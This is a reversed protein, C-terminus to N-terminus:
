PLKKTYYAIGHSKLLAEMSKADEASGYDEGVWVRFLGDSGAESPEVLRAPLHRASLLLLLQGAEERKSFAGAQVVWRPGTKPPVPEPTVAQRPSATPTPQPDVRGPASRPGAEDLARYFEAMPEDPDPSEGAPVREVPDLGAVWGQEGASLVSLYGVFLITIVAGYLTFTQRPTLPLKM